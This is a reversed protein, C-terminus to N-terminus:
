KDVVINSKIKIKKIARIAKNIKKTVEKYNSNIFSKAINIQLFPYYFSMRERFNIENFNKDKKKLIKIYERGLYFNIRKKNNQMIFNSFDWAPDGFRFFDWDIVGLFKGNKTFIFNSPDVDGHLLVDKEKLILRKKHLYLLIEKFRSELNDKDQKCLFGEKNLIKLSNLVEQQIYREWSSEKLLKRKILIKKLKKFNINHINYIIKAIEGAVKKPKKLKNAPIGNLFEQILFPLKHKENIKIVAFMSKKPIAVKKKLFKYLEKSKQYLNIKDASNGIRVIIKGKKGKLLFVKNNAHFQSFNKFKKIYEKNSINKRLHGEKILEKIIGQFILFNINM